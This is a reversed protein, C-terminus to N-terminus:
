QGNDPETQLEAEAYIDELYEQFGDCKEWCDADYKLFEYGKCDACFEDQAAQVIAYQEANM